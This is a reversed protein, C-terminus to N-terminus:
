PAGKCDRPCWMDLPVGAHRQDRHLLCPQCMWAVPPEPIVETLEMARFCIRDAGMPISDDCPRKLNGILQSQTPHICHWDEQETAKCHKCLM